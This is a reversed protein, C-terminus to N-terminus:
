QPRAEARIRADMLLWVGNQRTWMQSIWSARPRGHGAPDAEILKGSLVAQEGALQVHVSDLSARAGAAGREEPRRNDSVSADHMSVTAMATADHRAYADVWQSVRAALEPPEGAAASVGSQAAASGHPSAPAPAATKGDTSDRGKAAADPETRGATAVAAPATFRRTLTEGAPGLPEAAAENVSVRVAGADGARVSIENRATLNATTGAEMFRGDDAKGDVSARVWVRRQASVTISLPAASKGGAVKADPQVPAANATARQGSQVDVGRAGSVRDPQLRIRGSDFRDGSWLWWTTAGVVVVGAAIFAALARKVVHRGGSTAGALPVPEILPPIALFFPAPQTRPTAFAAVVPAPPPPPGVLPAVAALPPPVGAM